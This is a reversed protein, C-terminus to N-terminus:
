PVPTAQKIEIILAHSVVIPQESSALSSRILFRM